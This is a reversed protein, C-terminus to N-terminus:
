KNEQGMITLNTGRDKWLVMREWTMDPTWAPRQGSHIETRVENSKENAKTSNVVRKKFSRKEKPRKRKRM